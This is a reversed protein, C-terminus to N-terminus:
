PKKHVRCSQADGLDCAKKFFASAKVTDKPLEKGQYYTLACNFCGLANGLSCAKAYLVM